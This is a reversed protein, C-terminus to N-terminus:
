KEGVCPSDIRRYHLWKLFRILIIHRTNYTGVRKHMPDEHEPKRCSDLYLLVDDKMYDEFRKEIGVAKSLESLCQIITQIYSPRPNVEYKFEIIYNCVTLANEEALRTRDKLILESSKTITFCETASAIKKNLESNTTVSALATELSKNSLRGRRSSTNKFMM